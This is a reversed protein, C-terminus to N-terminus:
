VSGSARPRVAEGKSKPKFRGIPSKAPPGDVPDSLIIRRVLYDYVSAVFIRRLKGDLLSSLEGREILERIRTAKVGLAAEADAPSMVIRNDRRQEVRLAKIKARAADSLPHDDEIM